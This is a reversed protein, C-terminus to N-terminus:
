PSWLISEWHAGVRMLERHGESVLAFREPRAGRPLYRGRADKDQPHGRHGMKAHRACPVIGTFESGCVSCSVTM